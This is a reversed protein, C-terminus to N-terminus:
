ESERVKANYKEILYMNHIYRKIDKYCYECIHQFRVDKDELGYKRAEYRYIDFMKSNNEYVSDCYKGCIDCKYAEM